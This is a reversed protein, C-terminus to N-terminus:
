AVARCTSYLTASQQEAIVVLRTPYFCLEPLTMFNLWDLFARVFRRHVFRINLVAIRSGNVKPSAMASSVIAGTTPAAVGNPGSCIM